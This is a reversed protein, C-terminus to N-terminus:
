QENIEFDKPPFSMIETGMNFINETPQLLKYLKSKTIGPFHVKLCYILFNSQNDFPKNVVYNPM